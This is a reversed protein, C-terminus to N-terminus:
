YFETVVTQSLHGSEYVTLPRGLDYPIWLTNIVPWAEFQTKFKTLCSFSSGSPTLIIGRQTLFM